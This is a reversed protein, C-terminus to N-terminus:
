PVNPLTDAGPSKGSPGKVSAPLPILNQLYGDFWRGTSTADASTTVFPGLVKVARDLNDQNRLLIGVVKHLQTLAPHLTARNEAITGDIQQSLSVTGSLLSRVVARRDDIEQLLRSGDSVLAALDGSRDALLKTVNNTHQLLDSLSEDRSAVARSIKRLGDLAGRVNEPSGRLTDSLTDFAKGLQPVDIKQLQGSLDQLAPVVEYSPTTRSTPIESRASQRGSGIPQIELYHSGLITSLKIAARSSTGFRVKPDVTFGVKVHDGELGVSLVKGVKVGAIRVDESPKLGSAETFAAQYKTGGELRSLNFSLVVLLTVSTVGLLGMRLPDRERFSRKM